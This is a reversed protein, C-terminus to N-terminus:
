VGGVTAWPSLVPVVPFRLGISQIVVPLPPPPEIIALFGVVEEPGSVCWPDFVEEPITALLWQHPVGGLFRPRIRGCVRHPHPISDSCCGWFM